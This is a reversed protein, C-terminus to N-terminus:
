SVRGLLPTSGVRHGHPCRTASAPRHATRSCVGAATAAARVDPDCVLAALLLRQKPDFRVGIDLEDDEAGEPLAAEAPRGTSLLPEEDPLMADTM